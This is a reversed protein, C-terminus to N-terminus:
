QYHERGDPVLAHKTKDEEEEGNIAGLILCLGGKIENMSRSRKCSTDM